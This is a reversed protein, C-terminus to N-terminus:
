SKPFKERIADFPVVVNITDFVHARKKAAYKANALAQRTKNWLVPVIIPVYGLFKAARLRHTGERAHWIEGDWYARIMPPGLVKMEEIVRRLHAPRYYEHLPNVLVPM